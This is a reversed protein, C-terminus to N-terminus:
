YQESRLQCCFPLGRCFTHRQALSRKRGSYGVLQLDRYMEGDAPAYASISEAEGNLIFLVEDYNESVFEQYDSKVEEKCSLLTFATLLLILVRKLIQIRRYPDVGKRSHPLRTQRHLPYGGPEPNGPIYLFRGYLVAESGYRFDPGPGPVQHKGYQYIESRYVTIFCDPTHRHYLLSLSGSGSHVPRYPLQNGLNISDESADTLEMWSYSGGLEIFTSNDLVPLLWSLSNELGTNDAKGINVPRWTGGATPLWQILNETRSRFYVTSIELGKVPKLYIGGDWNLNEEPLLDPNGEAFAGGSWFLDDFGPNHFATGLNGKLTLNNYAPLTYTGSLSYSSHSDSRSVWEEYNTDSHDWRYAPTLSLYPGKMTLRGYATLNSQTAKGPQTTGDSSRLSTSQLNDRSLTIGAFPTWILLDTEISRSFDARGRLSSNQHDLRTESDPNEYLSDQRIWSVESDLIEGNFGSFGYGGSLNLRSDELVAQPTLYEMLGPIGRNGQYWSTELCVKHRDMGRINWNLGVSANDAWGQSNGRETNGRSSEFEYNGRTTRYEASAKGTLNGSYTLPFRIDAGTTYTQFSGAKAYVEGEPFLPPEERTILNIVGGFAGEGYVASNGGRIVEIRIVNNLSITNLNVADGKGNNLPIGNVMVLVQQGNTGRISVTTNELTTGTKSVTLGPTYQIAESVTRAGKKEWTEKEIVSKQGADTQVEPRKEVILIPESASEESQSFLPSFLFLIYLLFLIQKKM